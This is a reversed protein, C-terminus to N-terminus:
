GKIEFATISGFTPDQNLYVAGGGSNCRMYIQYTTASTTAPSDLISMSIQGSTDGYLHMMGNTANGLNTSDRYITYRGNVASTEGKAGTIIFIKNSASSPTITVSL